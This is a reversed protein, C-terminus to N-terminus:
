TKKNQTQKEVTYFFKTPKEKNETIETRCRITAGKPHHGEIEEIESEIKNIKIQNKNEQM